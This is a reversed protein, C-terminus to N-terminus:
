AGVRAVLAKLEAPQCVLAACGCDLLERVVQQKLAGRSRDTTAYIRRAAEEKGVKDELLKKLIRFAIAPETTTGSKSIVNLSFRKGELAKELNRMYVSSIQNGAFWIEPGGDSPQGLYTRLAEIVARAGLYSGGIGIVVLVDSDERIKEAAARIRVYEERDYTDPLDLWGLFDNGAGTGDELFQRAM